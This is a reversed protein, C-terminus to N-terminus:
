GMLEYLKFADLAGALVLDDIKAPLTLVRAKEGIVAALRHASPQADPDLCVIVEDANRFCDAWEAKWGKGPVGCVTVGPILLDGSETDWFMQWTVIAKIEGEVILLKGFPRRQTVDTWFIQKGAGALHPRYKGGPPNEILLRHQLGVVSWKSDDGGEPHPIWEARHYPITLSPSEFWIDNSCYRRSECYGLGHYEVWLSSVGREAWKQKALPHAAYERWEAAETLQRHVEEQREQEQQRREAELRDREAIRAEVEAPSLKLKGTLRELAARTPLGFIWKVFDVADGWHGGSGPEGHCHRCFFGKEDNVRFRDTGGCVPCPGAYEHAAVKRLRTHQGIMAVLDTTRKAEAFAARLDSM